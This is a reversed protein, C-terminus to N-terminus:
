WALHKAEPYRWRYLILVFNLLTLTRESLLSFTKKPFTDLNLRKHRIPSSRKRINWVTEALLFFAVEREFWILWEYFRRFMRISWIIKGASLMKRRCHSTIFLEVLNSMKCLIWCEPFVCMILMEFTACKSEQKWDSIQSFDWCFSSISKTKEDLWVFTMCAELFYRYGGNTIPGATCPIYDVIYSERYNLKSCITIQCFHNKM